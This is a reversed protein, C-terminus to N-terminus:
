PRRVIIDGYSNRARIEVTREGQGPAATADLRNHMTGFSTHLDLYAATGAPIGVELEGNSTKVSVTGTTVEGIRVDGNASSATVDAGALGVLIDGNAARAKLDGTIEGIRSDGNTNKLVANGDIRDVRVEGSGNITATGTVSRVVITGSPTSADLPGTSELHIDGTSNKIRCEGLRGTCRFTAVAAEGRFQSGTPLLVEVDISGQKGFLGLIQQRPAKILLQGDAYEIRTEAAAQVDRDTGPNSPRVEVVTDPRETATVRVDGVVVDVTANIPEPTDFVPM